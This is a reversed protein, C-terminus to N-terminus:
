DARPSQAAVLFCLRPADAHSSNSFFPFLVAQPHLRSDTEPGRDKIIKGWAPPHPMESDDRGRAVAM